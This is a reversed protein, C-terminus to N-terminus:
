RGVSRAAEDRDRFGELSVVLGDRFEALDAVDGLKALDGANWAEYGRRLLEAYDAM